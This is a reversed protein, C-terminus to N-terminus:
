QGYYLITVVDGAQIVYGGLAPNYTVSPSSFTFATTDVGNIKFTLIATATAPVSFVTQGPVAAATSVAFFINQATTGGNTLQTLNGSSDIYFLETIGGIDLTFVKGADTASSPAGGQEPLTTIPLHEVIAEGSGAATVDFDPGVFNICDVATQILIGDKRIKM